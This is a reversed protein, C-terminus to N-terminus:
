HVTIGHIIKILRSLSLYLSLSLSLSLSLIPSASHDLIFWLLDISFCLSLAVFCFTQSSLSSNSNICLAHSPEHHM